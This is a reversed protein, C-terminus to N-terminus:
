REWRYFVQKSSTQKVGTSETWEVITEIEISDADIIRVSVARSFNTGDILESASCESRSLAGFEGVTTPLDSVCYTFAQGSTQQDALLADRFGDWGLEIQFRKFVEITEQGRRTALSQLNSFTTNRVALTLGAVIAVLVFVLATAAVVVEIISQGSKLHKTYKTQVM